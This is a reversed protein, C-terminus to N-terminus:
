LKFRWSFDDKFAFFFVLRQKDSMACISAKALVGRKTLCYFALSGFSIAM